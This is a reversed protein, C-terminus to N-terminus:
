GRHLDTVQLPETVEVREPSQETRQVGAADVATPIPLQKEVLVDGQQQQVEEAGRDGAQAAQLLGRRQL